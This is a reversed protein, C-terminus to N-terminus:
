SSTSADDDDIIMSAAPGDLYFPDLLWVIDNGDIVKNTLQQQQERALPHQEKEKEERHEKIHLM